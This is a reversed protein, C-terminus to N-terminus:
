ILAFACLILYKGETDTSSDSLTRASELSLRRQYRQHQHNSQEGRIANKYVELPDERKYQQYFGFCIM